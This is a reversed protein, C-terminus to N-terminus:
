KQLHLIQKSNIECSSYGYFNHKDEFIFDQKYLFKYIQKQVVKQTTTNDWIQGINAFIAISQRYINAKTSVLFEEAANLILFGHILTASPRLWQNSNHFNLSYFSVYELTIWCEFFKEWMKLLFLNDVAHVFFLFLIDIFFNHKM